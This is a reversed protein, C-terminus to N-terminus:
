FFVEESRQQKQFVEPQQIKVLLHLVESHPQYFHSTAKQSHVFALQV